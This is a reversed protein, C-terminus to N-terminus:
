IWHSSILLIVEDLLVLSESGAAELIRKVRRIHGSFTSLSQALDQSDGLDALVERFWQLSQASANTHSQSQKDDRQHTRNSSQDDSNTLPLFLGAKAMLVLLGLTKLSATKGGTYTSILITYITKIGRSIDEQTLIHVISSPSLSSTIDFEIRWLLGLM